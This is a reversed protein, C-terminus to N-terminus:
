EQLSTTPELVNKKEDLIWFTNNNWNWDVYIGNLVFRNVPYVIKNTKTPNKKPVTYRPRNPKFYFFCSSQTCLNLYQTDTENCCTSSISYISVLAVQYKLTNPNKKIFLLAFEIFCVNYKSVKCVSFTTMELLGEWKM